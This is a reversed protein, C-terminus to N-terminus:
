REQTPELHMSMTFSEVSTEPVSMPMVAECSMTYGVPLEDEAGTSAACSGRSRSTTAKLQERLERDAPLLAEFLAGALEDAVKQVDDVDAREGDDRVARAGAVLSFEAVKDTDVFFNFGVEYSAEFSGADVAVYCERDDDATDQGIKEGRKYCKWPFDPLAKTLRDLVEEGHQQFCRELFYENETQCYVTSWPHEPARRDQTKVEPADPVTAM